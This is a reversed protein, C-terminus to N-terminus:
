LSTACVECGDNGHHGRLLIILSLGQGVAQQARPFVKNAPAVLEQTAKGTLNASLEFLPHLGLLRAVLDVHEDILDDWFEDIVILLWFCNVKQEFNLSKAGENVEGVWIVKLADAVVQKGAGVVCSISFLHLLSEASRKVDEALELSIRLCHAYGLLHVVHIQDGLQHTLALILDRQFLQGEHKSTLAIRIFTLVSVELADNGILFQTLVELTQCAVQVDHLGLVRVIDELSM